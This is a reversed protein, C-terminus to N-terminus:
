MFKTIIWSQGDKEIKLYAYLQYILGNELKIQYSVIANFEVRNDQKYLAFNSIGLYEAGYTNFKYNNFFDQSVDRGTYLDELTKDVKIRAAELTDKDVISDSNFAYNQDIDIEKFNTVDASQLSYLSMNAAPRYGRVKGEQFYEIPITFYYTKTFTEGKKYIRNNKVYYSVSNSNMDAVEISSNDTDINLDESTVESNNEETTKEAETQLETVKETIAETIEESNAETINETSTIVPDIDNVKTNAPSPKPLIHDEATNAETVVEETTEETPQSEITETTDEVVKQTTAETKKETPHEKIYENIIDEDTKLGNERLQKILREDRVEEDLKKYEVDVCFDVQALANSLTTVRTIALSNKDVKCYEYVKTDLTAYKNFLSKINDVLYRRVGDKPYYNINNRAITTVQDETLPTKFFTNYTGFVLLAILAVFFVSVIIIKNRTQAKKMAEIKAMQDQNRQRIEEEIKRQKEAELERMEASSKGLKLKNAPM